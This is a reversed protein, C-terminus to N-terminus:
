FHHVYGKDIVGMRSERVSCNVLEEPPIKEIKFSRQGPLKIVTHKYNTSFKKKEFHAAKIAARLEELRVFKVLIRSGDPCFIETNFIKEKCSTIFFILALFLLIKNRSLKDLM